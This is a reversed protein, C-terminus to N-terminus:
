YVFVKTQFYEFIERTSELSCSQILLKSQHKAFFYLEFDTVM